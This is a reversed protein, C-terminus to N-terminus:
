IDLNSNWFYINRCGIDDNKTDFVDCYSVDPWRLQFAEGSELVKLSKARIGAADKVREIFGRNAITLIWM